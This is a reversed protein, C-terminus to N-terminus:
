AFTDVGGRTRAAAGYDYAPANIDDAGASATDSGSGTTGNGQNGSGNQDATRPDSQERLNFQLNASDTRLGADNLARELSSSDNKLLALTDKNDATVTVKVKQDDSMELKVDIRGLAEPKLQINVKDIGAKAARTISVKIQDVVQQATAPPASSTQAAGKTQAAPAMGTNHFAEMGAGTDGQTSQGTSQGGSASDLAQIPAAESSALTSAAPTPAQAQIQPPLIMPAVVMTQAEATKATQVLANTPETAGVQGNATSTADGATYGVYHNYPSPDVAAATQVRGAVQVQVDVKSDPTLTKALTDAQDVAAASRAEKPSAATSKAATPKAAATANVVPAQADTNAGTYSAAAATFSQDMELTDDTQTQAVTAAAAAMQVDPTTAVTQAAVAAPAATAETAAVQQAVVAVPAITVATVVPVDVAAAAQAQVATQAQAAQADTTTSDQNTASTNSSDQNDDNAAKTDKDDSKTKKAKDVARPANQDTDDRADARATEAADNSHMLKGEMAGLAATTSLNAGVTQLLAAFATAPNSNDTNFGAGAGATSGALQAKLKSSITQVDM